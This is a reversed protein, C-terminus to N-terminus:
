KLLAPPPSSVIVPMSPSLVRSLFPLLRPSTMPRSPILTHTSALALALALRANGHVAGDTAIPASTNERVQSSYTMTPLYTPPQTAGFHRPTYSPRPGPGWLLQGLSQPLFIVVASFRVGLGCLGGRRRRSTLHSRPSPFSKAVVLAPPSQSPAMPLLLAIVISPRTVLVDRPSSQPPPPPVCPM